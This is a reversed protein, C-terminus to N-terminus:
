KNNQLRSLATEVFAQDDPTLSYNGFRAKYFLDTLSAVDENSPAPLVQTVQEAFEFPTAAVPKVFGKQQLLALMEQYFLIPSRILELKRKRAKYFRVAYYILGPLLGILVLLLRNQKWMMRWWAHPSTANSSKERLTENLKRYRERVSTLVNIQDQASFILIYRDWFFSISDFIKRPNIIEWISRSGGPGAVTRPSPDFQVWLGNGFYVEVWSHADSQRITYFEGIENYEGELFGNVLRSPIRIHRLLLVMATAFYECHGMKKKFLFESVPDTASRPLDTTTYQYNKELYAQVLAARDYQNTASGTIQQALTEIEPNRSPLRVFHRISETSDVQRSRLQEPSYVNIQSYVVYHEPRGMGTLTGNVDRSVAFFNGDVRAVRYQGFIVGSDIPTLYVEQKVLSAPNNGEPSVVFTSLSDQFVFDSGHRSVGWSKGDYRNFAVGRWYFRHGAPIREGNVRIRMVEGTNEQIKAIDGLEVKKSFGSVHQTQDLKLGGFYGLQARPLVFFIGLAFVVMTVTAIVIFGWYRAHFLSFPFPETPDSRIWMKIMTISLINWVFFLSFLLIMYLMEIEVSLATAALMSLFTLLYLQYYDRHTQLNFLKNIIIFIFLHVLSPALSRTLWFWDAFFFILYLFSVIEWFSGGRPRHVFGLTFLSFVLLIASSIWLKQTLMLSVGSVFVLLHAGFRLASTVREHNPDVPKNM